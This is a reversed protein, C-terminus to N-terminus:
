KKYKEWFKLDLKIDPLEEWLPTYVIDFTSQESFCRLICARGLSKANNKELIMKVSESTLYRIWTGRVNAEWLMNMTQIFDDGRGHPWEAFVRNQPTLKKYGEPYTAFCIEGKDPDFLESLVIRLTSDASIVAGIDKEPPFFNGTKQFQRIAEDPYKFILNNEREAMYLVIRGDEEVYLAFDATLFNELTSEAVHYYPHYNKRQKIDRCRFTQIEKAHPVITFDIKKDVGTLEGTGAPSSPATGQLRRLYELTGKSFKIKM